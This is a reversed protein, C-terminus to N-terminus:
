PTPAITPASPTDTPAATSTPLETPTPTPTSAQVTFTVRKEASHGATDVVVVRITMPGSYNILDLNLESLVGNNIQAHPDAVNASGWGIPDASLGFDVYYHDFNTAGVTGTIQLVGNYTGGEVPNTIEINPLVTNQDCAATPPLKQIQEPTIGRQAAWAQGENSTLLWDRSFAAVDILQSPNPLMLFLEDKVPTPCFPNALLGTFENIQLVQYISATAEPPKATQAFLDTHQGSHELCYPSPIAGDDNCVNQQFIQDPGLAPFNQPPYWQQAGDLIGRWIPGAGTVGSVNIMPSNDTNGVWVGVVLESTYGMTWNDRFDNTTGTKAGAPYPPSLPSNEGFSPIRAVKDTMIDRILYTYQPEVVQAPAPPQYPYGEMVQGNREIRDIAYYPIYTGGRQIVAFANTWQILEVEGAGLTLSLGYQNPNSPDGLTTVGVDNLTKLLAPV